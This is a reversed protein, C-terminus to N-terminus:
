RTVPRYILGIVLGVVVWQVFYAAAQGLALKLGINFNAFNHLVCACVVFMWQGTIIARWREAMGGAPRSGSARASCDCRDEVDRCGMVSMSYARSQCYGFLVVTWPGRITLKLASQM